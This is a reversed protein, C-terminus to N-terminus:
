QPRAKYCHLLLKFNDAVVMSFSHGQHRTLASHGNPSICSRVYVTSCHNKVVVYDQYAFQKVNKILNVAKRVRLQIHDVTLYSNRAKFASRAM